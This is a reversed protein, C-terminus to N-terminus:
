RWVGYWASGPLVTGYDTAGGESTSTTSGDEYWSQGYWSQGYWSQGYWSQGEVWQSGYWSQGSWPSGAYEGTDFPLLDPGQIRRAALATLVGHVYTCDNGDIALRAANCAFSTVLVGRRTLDLGSDLPDQRPVQQVAGGVTSGLSASVSVLGAGVLTAPPGGLDYAGRVLAAKVEDPTWERRELLIAAAASVLATAQSTGSGRRYGSVGVTSPPATQEIHSGPSTLSVLGVGPAVVDPKAVVLRDNSPGESV